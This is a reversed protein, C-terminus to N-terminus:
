AASDAPVPVALRVPFSLTVEFGGEPRNAIEFLQATGYLQQLRSRTNALGVGTRSTQQDPVGPGDDSVVLVIREGARRAAIEIRGGGARRSVGHQIANEVLPQLILNPVYADLLGPDVTRVVRLRDRFRTREIEVYRDIFEMEQKLTVEQAGVRELSERLLDGLLALMRDAARLDTHMLASITHLTNFLFHPQLQMRLVQLQAQALQTELRSARLDRDRYKKYYHIGHGVASVEIYLMLCQIVVRLTLSRTMAMSIMPEDLLVALTPRYLEMAALSVVGALLGM